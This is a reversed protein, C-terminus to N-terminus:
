AKAKAAKGAKKRVYEDKYRIGKGKYPEPPKIARVTAAFQGVLHKDAGNIIIEGTKEITVKIGSPIEVMTPHSFGVQVDLMNGKIAARYGVGIMTLRKEFGESAGIVLNRILAWYLGYLSNDLAISEDRLVIVKGDEVKVDIGKILDLSTSGKPGKMQIVGNVVKLENGKPLIIPRKALRSM